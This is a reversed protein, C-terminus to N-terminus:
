AYGDYYMYIREVLEKNEEANIRAIQRRIEDGLSAFRSELPPNCKVGHTDKYSDPNFRIYVWKGSYAMYLDDHRTQEDMKNYAKHQSEDTEIALMTGCIIRRHDVRRRVTCDCHGTYLTEDHSFGSFTANIYDRVMNEKSKRQIMFCLPDNPFTNVFCHTCYGRYTSNWYMTCTGAAGPCCQKSLSVMGQLKCKGCYLKKSESEYNYYAYSDKCSICMDANVNVMTPTKCKGCYLPKTEGPENYLPVTKGCACKMRDVRIMDPKICSACCLPTENEPYNFSPQSKGCACMRSVINTMEDTKCKVCYVPSLENKLNYSPQAKGCACVMYQRKRDESHKECRDGEGYRFAHTANKDCKPFTCPRKIAKKRAMEANKKLKIDHNVTEIAADIATMKKIKKSQEKFIARQVNILLGIDGLSRSSRTLALKYAFALFVPIILSAKEPDSHTWVILAPCVYALLQYVNFRKASTHRPRPPLKPPAM